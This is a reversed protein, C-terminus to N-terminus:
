GKNNIFKREYLQKGACGDFVYMKRCNFSQSLNHWFHVSLTNLHRAEPWSFVPWFNASVPGTVNQEENWSHLVTCTCDPWRRKSLGWLATPSLPPPPITYIEVPSPSMEHLVGRCSQGGPLLSNNHTHWRSYFGDCEGCEWVLYGGGGLSYRGVSLM